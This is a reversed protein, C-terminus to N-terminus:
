RKRSMDWPEGYSQKEEKELPSLFRLRGFHFSATQYRHLYSCLKVHMYGAKSFNTQILWQTKSLYINKQWSHFHDECHHASSLCYHFYPRFFIWAQVPNLSLSFFLFRWKQVNWGNLLFGNTYTKWRSTMFTIGSHVKKNMRIQMIQFWGTNMIPTIGQKSRTTLWDSCMKMSM